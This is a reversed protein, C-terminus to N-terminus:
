LLHLLSWLCSACTFPYLASQSYKSRWSGDQAHQRTSEEVRSGRGQRKCVGFGPQRSGLVSVTQEEVTCCTRNVKYRMRRMGRNQMVWTDSLAQAGLLAKMRMVGIDSM